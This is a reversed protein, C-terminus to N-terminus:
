RMTATQIIRDMINDLDFTTRERECETKKPDDYNGCQTARITTTFTLVKDEKKAAYAYQTYVSGAAGESAKTICYERGGIMRSETRGNLAIESGATLCEFPGSTVAVHPPWDLARMYTTGLTEPYRFSVGAKKDIITKWTVDTAAGPCVAFECKPGSRGVYSGDPCQKADMTCFMPQESVVGGKKEGDSPKTATSSAAKTDNNKTHAAALSCSTFECNIGGRGVFSGDECPKADMACVQRSAHANLTWISCNLYWAFGLWLLYPALLIAAWRSIGYFLIMTEIVFALLFIIDILAGLPSHLGFFIVSWLANLVLQIGFIALAVKVKKRHLGAHWVLFAAIGMLAYLVTWVPGFVWAPPNLAPKQLTDYWTPIASATFFSGIVGALESVLVAIILKTIANLKM